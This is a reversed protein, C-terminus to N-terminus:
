NSVAITFQLNGSWDGAKLSPISVTGSVTTGEATNVEAAGWSTTTQSVSAEVNKSGQTLNFTSDPTVTITTTDLIDGKVTVNYNVEKVDELTINTPLTVTYSEEVTASVPVSQSGPATVTNDAFVSTTMCLVTTLLAAFFKKKM